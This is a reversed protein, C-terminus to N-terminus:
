ALAASSHLSLPAPKTLYTNSPPPKTPNSRITPVHPSSFPPNVWGSYTGGVLFTWIVAPYTACAFLQTIHKWPNEKMRLRSYPKLEQWYTLPEEQKPGLATLKASQNKLVPSGPEEEAPDLAAEAQAPRTTALDTNYIPPREYQTEPAFLIVLILNFATFATLIWFNTRWNYRDAVCGSLIPSLNIPGLSMINLFAVRKGRQHVQSPTLAKILSSLDSHVQLTCTELVRYYSLKM